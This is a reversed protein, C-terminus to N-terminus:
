VETASRDYQDEFRQIDAQQWDGFAVELVRVPGNASSLRHAVNAGIWFEEGAKPFFKEENVEICAGDDLVVWLEARKSHAQLSLSQGAEVQMLSVTVAQNHAYQWFRGWPREVLTTKPKQAPFTVDMIPITKDM